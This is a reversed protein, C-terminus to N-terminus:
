YGLKTLWQNVDGKANQVDSGQVQFGKLITAKPYQDRLIEQTSGFGSGGDTVFPIITKNNLDIKDFLTRMIMPYESYWIPSGIFINKYNDVNPLSGKISPRANNDKEETAIDELKSLSKDPYAKAPIVRYIDANTKSKIYNAIVQTNGVKRYGEYNAGSHSFYIILTKGNSKKTSGQSTEKIAQNSTSKNSQLNSKSYIIGLVIGLVVLVTTLIGILKVRKTHKM